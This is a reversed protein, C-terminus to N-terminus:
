SSPNILKTVAGRALPLVFDVGIVGNNSWAVWGQVIIAPSFTISVFSGVAINASVSVRCGRDTIDTATGDCEILSTTAVKVCQLLPRRALEREEMASLDMAPELM